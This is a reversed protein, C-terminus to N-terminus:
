APNYCNRLPGPHELTSHGSLVLFSPAAFNSCTSDAFTVVLGTVATGRYLLNTVTAPGGAGTVPRCRSLHDNNSVAITNNQQM